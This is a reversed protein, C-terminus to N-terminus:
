GVEIRPDLFTYLIDVFLNVAVVLCASVFFIGLLLNLDRSFLADYALLGLGPWGFVSEVIVSGGLLGGMQVGAVTVVPLLANRLIHRYTIARETLGKARATTVYDMGAQELISARMLRTYAALYFLSLTTAPLILHVAIDLVRDWGEYFAGISEMGSAPLLDLKISFVVVFMLGIWFLPTAYSVLAFVSILNDRWTNLGRAALIGLLAGFGVAIVLTTIMLLLTPGLRMLILESVQMEQRFSYGLDLSLINTVYRVLQVHVPQDLGFRERLQAIYEPTASGAEGALVDVADGEALQLLLFNMVVIALVVPIAQVIRRLIYRLRKM